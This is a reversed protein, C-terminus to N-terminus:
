LANKRKYMDGMLQAGSYAIKADFEISPPPPATYQQHTLAYPELDGRM